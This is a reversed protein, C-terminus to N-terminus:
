QQQYLGYAAVPPRALAAGASASLSVIAPLNFQAKTTSLASQKDDYCYAAVAASVRGKQQYRIANIVRPTIM